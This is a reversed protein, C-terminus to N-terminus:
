VVLTVQCHICIVKMCGFLNVGHCESSSEDTRSFEIGSISKKYDRMEEIMICLNQGEFCDCFDLDM